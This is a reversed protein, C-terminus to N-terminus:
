EVDDDDAGSVGPAFGGAGGGAHAAAGGHDGHIQVEDGLHGAVRGDAADGLAVQDALDIREAADHAFYGIGDADLETQEVRRPGATHDGRAWASRM